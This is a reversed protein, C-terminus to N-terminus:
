CGSDQRKEVHSPEKVPIIISFISGKGPASKIKLLGGNRRILKWCISLGLGTGKKKTTFFPNFIKQLDEESIGCGEDQVSICIAPDGVRFEKELKPLRRSCDMKEDVLLLSEPRVVPLSLQLCDERRLKIIQSKVVVSGGEPMAQVANKFLNLLVQELHEPDVEVRPISADLDCHMTIGSLEPYFFFQVTEKIIENVDILRKRPEGPHAFALLDQIIKMCRGLEKEIRKLMGYHEHDEPIEDLIHQAFGLIIGLPNNLEHSIGAAFEGLATLSGAQVLSEQIVELDGTTKRLRRRLQQIESKMEENDMRLRKLDEQMRTILKEASSILDSISSDRSKGCVNSLFSRCHETEKTNRFGAVMRGGLALFLIIAAMLWLPLLLLVANKFSWPTVQLVIFFGGRPIIEYEGKESIVESGTDRALKLDHWLQPTDIVIEGRVPDFRHDIICVTVPSDKKVAINSLVKLDESKSANLIQGLQKLYTKAESSRRYYFVFSITFCVLFVGLLFLFFRFDKTAFNKGPM